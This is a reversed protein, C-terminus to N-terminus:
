ETPGAAPGIKGGGGAREGDSGGEELGGTAFDEKTAGGGLGV